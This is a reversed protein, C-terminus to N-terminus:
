TLPHLPASSSSLASKEGSKQATKEVARNRLAVGAGVLALFTAGGAGYAASKNQNKKDALKQEVRALNNKNVAEDPYDEVLKKWTALSLELDGAKDAAHAFRRRLMQNDRKDANAPILQVARAFADKAKSLLLSTADRGAQLQYHQAAEDWMEWDNANAKLGREIHALAEEKRDLSWMLWAAVAFSEVDHPDIAVIAKHCKVAREYDGAHFAEDSKEWLYNTVKNGQSEHEHSPQAHVTKVFFVVVALAALIRLTSM